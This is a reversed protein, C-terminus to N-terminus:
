GKPIDEHGIIKWRGRTFAPLSFVHKNFVVKRKRGLLQPLSLPRDSELDYIEVLHDGAGRHIIRGYWYKDELSIAFYDGMAFPQRKPVKKLRFVVEGVVASEMDSFYRGPDGGLTSLLTRRFEELTPKRGLDEVYSRSVAAVADHILDLPEDGLVLRRGKATEDWWGM